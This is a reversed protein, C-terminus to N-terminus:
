LKTFRGTVQPGGAWVNRSLRVIDDLIFHSGSDNYSSTFNSKDVCRSFPRATETLSAPQAVVLVGTM